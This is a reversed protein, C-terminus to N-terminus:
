KAKLTVDGKVISIAPSNDGATSQQLPANKSDPSQDNNPTTKNPNGSNDITVSGGVGQIAPSNTGLTKQSPM